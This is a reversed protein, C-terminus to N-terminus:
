GHSGICTEDGALRGPHVHYGWIISLDAAPRQRESMARGRLLSVGVPKAVWVVARRYHARAEATSDFIAFFLIACPIPTWIRFNIVTVSAADQRWIIAAMSDVRGFNSHLDAFGRYPYMDQRLSIVVMYIALPVSFLVNAAALAM